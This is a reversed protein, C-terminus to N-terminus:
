SRRALFVVSASRSGHSCGWGSLPLRYKDEDSFVRELGDEKRGLNSCRPSRWLKLWPAASPDGDSRGGAGSRDLCLDDALVVALGRDARPASGAIIQGAGVEGPFGSVGRRKREGCQWAAAVPGAAPVAGHVGHGAPLRSCRLMQARLRRSQDVIETGNALRTPPRTGPIRLFINEISSAFCDPDLEVADPWPHVCRALLRITVPHALCLKRDRPIIPLEPLTRNGLLTYDRWLVYVGDEVQHM